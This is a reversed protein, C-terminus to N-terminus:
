KKCSLEKRRDMSPQQQRGCRWNEKSMTNYHQQDSLINTPKFQQPNLCSKNKQHQADLSKARDVVLKFCCSGLVIWKNNEWYSSNM